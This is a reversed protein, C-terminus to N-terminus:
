TLLKNIYVNNNPHFIKVMIPILSNSPFYQLKQDTHYM